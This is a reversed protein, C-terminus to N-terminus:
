KNKILFKEKWTDERFGVLTEKGNIVVFPFGIREDFKDRLDQKIGNRIDPNQLDVYIYKFKIKNERLFALASRCFGCTSLAYVTIDAIDFEGEEYKYELDKLM